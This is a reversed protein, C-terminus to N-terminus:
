DPKNQMQREIATSTAGLVISAATANPNCCSIKPGISYGTQPDIIEGQDIPGTAGDFGLLLLSRALFFAKQMTPNPSMDAEEIQKAVSHPCTDCIINM